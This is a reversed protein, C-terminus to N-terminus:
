DFFNTVAYPQARGNLTLNTEFRFISDMVNRQAMFLTVRVLEGDNLCLRTLDIRQDLRDHIGGLDIVLQDNVYVWVDANAGVALYPDAMSADYTFTAEFQYSFFQNHASDPESGFARGDLPYFGGLQSYYTDITDDFVYVGDPQRQLTIGINESVNVGLTDNFWEGFSDASAIGADSISADIIADTDNGPGCAGIPDPLPPDPIVPELSVLVVMDQFDAYASTLDTTYLEYLYIVQNNGITVTNTAADVHDSIYEGISLQDGYPNIDPVTDGDRLVMVLPSNDDSDVNLRESTSDWSRGAVTIHSGSDYVLPFSYSRPNAGDNINGASRSGFSGFPEYTINDVVAKMSVPIASIDVGLVELKANFDYNVIVEGDVIDFDTVDISVVAPAISYGSADAAPSLVRQASGEYVLKGNAALTSSVIGVYQGFGGAPTAGYDSHDATFDRALGPLYVTSVPDQARVGVPSIASDLLCIGTIAAVASLLARCPSSAECKSKM